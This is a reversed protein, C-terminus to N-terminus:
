PGGLGDLPVGEVPDTSGADRGPAGGEGEKEEDGREDGVGGEEAM